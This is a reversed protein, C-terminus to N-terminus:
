KKIFIQNELATDIFYTPIAYTAGKEITEIIQPDKM